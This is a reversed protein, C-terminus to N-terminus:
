SRFRPKITNNKLESWIKLGHLLNKAAHHVERNINLQTSMLSSPGKIGSTMKYIRQDMAKQHSDNDAILEDCSDIIYSAQHPAKILDFLRAYLRQHYEKQLEFQSFTNEDLEVRLMDLNGKIDKLTKCSYVIFRTIEIVHNLHTSQEPTLAQQQIKVIYAFIDSENAKIAEYNDAFSNPQFNLHELEPRIAENNALQTVPINFHAANTLLAQTWLRELAGNLLALSAEPVVVPLNVLWVPQDSKITNELWRTFSGVLPLFVLLGILNFLSHFAVLGVLPDQFGGIRYFDTVFPLFIFFAGLDVVLNFTVHALALQKKVVGGTLSGLVVTSTTGLDAGIVVAAAEPLTLLGANLATLTLIMMASSSQIIATLATGILLYVIPHYGQLTEFSLAAPVNAVSDKMHALGFLLLGLGLLLKGISYVRLVGQGGRHQSVLLVLGGIAIIPLAVMGELDLKFGVATVLWGKLTTGLNAGLLVGVANVLPIAGASAFALVILSVLSSSQLIATLATGSLASSVPSRTTRLLWKKLGRGSLDKAGSELQSMGYLFIGLGVILNVLSMM